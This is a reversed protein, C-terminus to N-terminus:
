EKRMTAEDKMWEEVTTLLYKTMKSAWASAENIEKDTAERDPQIMLTLHEMELPVKIRTELPTRKSINKIMTDLDSM